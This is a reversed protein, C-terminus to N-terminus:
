HHSRHERNSFRGHYYFRKRARVVKAAPARRRRARAHTVALRCEVCNYPTLVIFAFFRHHPATARADAATTPDAAAKPTATCLSYLSRCWSGAYVASVGSVKSVGFGSGCGAGAPPSTAAPNPWAKSLSASAVKPPATMSVALPSTTQSFSASRGSVGADDVFTSVVAAAVHCSGSSLRIVVSTTRPCFGSLTTMLAAPSTHIDEACISWSASCTSFATGLTAPTYTSVLAHAPSAWAGPQSSSFMSSPKTAGM